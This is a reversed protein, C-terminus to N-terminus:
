KTFYNKYEDRAYEAQQYLQFQKQELMTTAKEVAELIDSKKKAALADRLLDLIEVMEDEEPFQGMIENLTLKMDAEFVHEDVVKAADQLIDGHYYVSYEPYRLVDQLVM